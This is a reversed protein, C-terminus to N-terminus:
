QLIIHYVITIKEWKQVNVESILTVPILPCKYIKSNWFLILFGGFGLSAQIVVSDILGSSNKLSYCNM